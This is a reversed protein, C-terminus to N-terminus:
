VTLYFEMNEKTAEDISLIGTRHLELIVRANGKPDDSFYTPWTEPANLVGDFPTVIYGLICWDIETIPPKHDPVTEVIKAPGTPRHRQGMGNCMVWWEEKRKFCDMFPEFNIDVAIMVDPNHAKKARIDFMPEGGSYNARIDNVLMELRDYIARPSDAITQRTAIVIGGGHPKKAKGGRYKSAFWSAVLPDYAQLDIEWTIM